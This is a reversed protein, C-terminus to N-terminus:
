LVSAARSSVRGTRPDYAYANGDPDLPLTAIGADRLLEELRRPLRGTRARHAAVAQELTALDLRVQLMRVQRRAIESAAGDSRPDDAVERWARLAGLTDGARAQMGAKMRLVFSPAGRVRAAREFYTAARALDGVRECEWAAMYPFIWEAPNRELGLDLLRLGAELDKGEVTLILAGMWYPDRYRPDLEAIVDGFVHEVYRYRDGGAYGSYHQIAWLYVLDALLTPHGLSVARLYKGNPLYLLPAEKAGERALHDLRARSVGTLLIAGATALVVVLRLKM